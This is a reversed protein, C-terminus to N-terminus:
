QAKVFDYQLLTVPSKCLLQFCDRPLGRKEVELLAEGALVQVFLPPPNGIAHRAYLHYM